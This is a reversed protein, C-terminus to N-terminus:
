EGEQTSSEDKGGFKEEWTTAIEELEPEEVPATARILAERVEKNRVLQVTFFAANLLENYFIRGLEELSGDFNRPKVIAYVTKEPDGDLIVYARDLMAYAASYVLDVPFIKGNIKVVVVNNKNDVQIFEEEKM